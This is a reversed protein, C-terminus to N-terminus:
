TMISNSNWSGSLSLKFGLIAQLFRLIREQWIEVEM